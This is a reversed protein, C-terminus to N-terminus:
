GNVAATMGMVAASKTSNPFINFYNTGKKAFFDFYHKVFRSFYPLISSPNIGLAIDSIQGFL